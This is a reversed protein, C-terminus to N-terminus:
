HPALRGSAADLVLGARALTARLQPSTASLTLAQGARDATVAASVLLQVFSLDAATIGSLDLAVDGGPALLAALRAHFAEARGLLADGTLGDTRSTTSM